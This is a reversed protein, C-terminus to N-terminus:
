TPLDAGVRYVRNFLPVAMVTTVVAMIVLITFLTQTIMGREYGINLLILEM